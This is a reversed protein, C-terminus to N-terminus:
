SFRDDKTVALHGDDLAAWLTLALYSGFPSAKTYDLPPGEAYYLANILSSARQVSGDNVPFVDPLGFHFIALMAASWDSLGWVSAVECRLDDYSLYRWSLLRDPSCRALEAIAAFTRAKRASLGCARLDGEPLLLVTCRGTTEARKVLRAYITDAAARSLMQGVVIKGLAEEVGVTSPTPVRVYGTAAFLPKLTPFAEALHDYAACHEPLPPVPQSM